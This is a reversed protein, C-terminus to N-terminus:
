RVGEALKEYASRRRKFIEETAAEVMEDFDDQNTHSGSGDNDAPTSDDAGPTLLKEPQNNQNTHETNSTNM